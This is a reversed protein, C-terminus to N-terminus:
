GESSLVRSNHKYAISIPTKHFRVAGDINKTKNKSPFATQLKITIDYTACNLATSLKGPLVQRVTSVNFLYHVPVHLNENSVSKKQTNLEPLKISHKSLLFLPNKIFSNIIDPRDFNTTLWVDERELTVRRLEVSLNHKYAILILTTFLGINFLCM